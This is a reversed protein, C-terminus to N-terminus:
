GKNPGSRLTATVKGHDLKWTYSTSLGYLRDVFSNANM